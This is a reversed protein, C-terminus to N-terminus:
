PEAQRVAEAALLARADKLDTTNWGESFSQYIDSLQERWPMAAGTELVIRALSMTARLELSRSGQKRATAIAQEYRAIAASPSSDKDSSLFDGFLRHIEPEAWREGTDAAIKLAEEFTVRALQPQHDAAYADALFALCVPRFVRSGTQQWLELGRQLRAISDSPRGSHRAHWGELFHGLAQWYPLERENAYRTLESGLRAVEAQDRLM